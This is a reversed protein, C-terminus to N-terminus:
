REILYIQGAQTIQYGERGGDTGFGPEVLRFDRLRLLASRVKRPSCSLADAVDEAALVRMEGVNAYRRLVAADFKEIAVETVSIAGAGARRRQRIQGIWSTLRRRAVRISIAAESFRGACWNTLRRDINRIVNIAIGLAMVTTLWFLASLCLSLTGGLDDNGIELFQSFAPAHRMLLSLAADGPYTLVAIFWEGVDRITFQGDGNLDLGPLTLAQQREDDM